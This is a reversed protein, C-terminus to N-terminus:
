LEKKPKVQVHRAPRDLRLAREFQKWDWKGEGGQWRGLLGDMNMERLGHVALDGAYAGDVLWLEDFPPTRKGGGGHRRVAVFARGGYRVRTTLWGVQLPRFTVAWGSTAKCEVWVEAADLLKPTRLGDRIFGSAFLGNLDPVGGQVTGTEITTWHPGVLCKRIIARLGDDPRQRAKSM